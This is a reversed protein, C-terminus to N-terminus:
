AWTVWYFPIRLTQSVEGSSRFESGIWLLNYAMFAFLLICIVRTAARLLNRNRRGLLPLLIDMSVHGRDWSTLPIAFGIVIPGCILGIIEYAGIVPYGVARLLVDVVTIVIMLAAATGAIWNLVRSVRLVAGLLSGMIVGTYPIDSRDCPPAQEYGKEGM